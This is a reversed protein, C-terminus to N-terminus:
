YQPPPGGPFLLHQICKVKKSEFHMCAGVILLYSAACVVFRVFVGVVFALSPQSSVSRVCAHLSRVFAHMHECCASSVHLCAHLRSTLTHMHGKPQIHTTHHTQRKRHHQRQHDVMCTPIIRTAETTTSKRYPVHYVTADILMRGYWYSHV